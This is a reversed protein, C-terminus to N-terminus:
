RIPHRLNLNIDDDALVPGLDDLPLGLGDIFVKL